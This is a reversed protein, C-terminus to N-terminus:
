SHARRALLLVSSFEGVPPDACRTLGEFGLEALDSAVVNEDYVHLQMPPEFVRRRRIINRLWNLPPIAYRARILARVLWTASSSTLFQMALFGGPEVAAALQRVISRGRPWPIHQLVIYTHVLSFRTAVGSLDGNSHLFELNGIRAQGANLRAEAIMSSSVDVGTCRQSRRAFPIALRGVGCGFDLTSRLSPHNGFRDAILGLVREVHEEGSRFFSERGQADMNQRSYPTQSLVGFYPDSAGWKEWDRDTGM